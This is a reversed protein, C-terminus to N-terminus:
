LKESLPDPYTNFQIIHTFQRPQIEIVNISFSCNGRRYRPYQEYLLRTKCFMPTILSVFNRFYFRAEKVAQPVLALKAPPNVKM